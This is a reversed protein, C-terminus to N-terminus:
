CFLVREQFVFLFFILRRAFGAFLAGLLNQDLNSRVIINNPRPHEVQTKVTTVEVVIKVVEQFITKTWKPSNESSSCALGSMLGSPSPSEGAQIICPFHSINCAYFRSLSHTVVQGRFCYAVVLVVHLLLLGRTSMPVRSMFASSYM